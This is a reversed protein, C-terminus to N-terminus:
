FPIEEIPPEDEISLEDEIPPEDEISLEDEQDNSWFFPEIKNAWVSYSRRQNGNHDTWEQMNLSGKVTFYDGKQLKGIAEIVPTVQDDQAVNVVDLWLPERYDGNAKRGASLMAPVRGRVRGTSTYDIIGGDKVARLTLMVFNSPREDGKPDFKTMDSAIIELKEKETGSSSTWKQYGLRGKVTVKDGKSLDAVRQVLANVEDDPSFAKIDFFISPKTQEEKRVGTYNYGRATAFAKGTGTLTDSLAGGDGVIGVTFVVFNFPRNSNNKAAM